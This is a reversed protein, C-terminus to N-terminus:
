APGLEARLAARAVKGGPTRPLDARVVYRLPRAAPPLDARAVARLAATLATTPAAPGLDPGTVPAPRVVCVVHEGLLPDPEALCVLEAVGPSGALAREVDDLLVVRGGVSAAAGGRGRVTLVPGAPTDVLEGRDGVTAWGAGDRRLPGTPDPDLYGRAQYASRAWVVGERVSLEVGPFARLGRGDPDAAVFSLEAAGYYEAIGIGAAAAAARATPPLASGAVVAGALGALHGERRAAIVDALVAPVCHIAAAGAGAPVSAAGRWRGPAIVPRGTALAHWLGFLTLTADAGGPVWVATGAPCAPGLLTDFASLSAQWSRSTRVVARPAGSSGSTVVVLLPGGDPAPALGAARDLARRLGAAPWSTAALVPVAGALHAALLTTVAALPDDGPAAM